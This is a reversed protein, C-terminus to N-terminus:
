NSRCKSRWCSWCGVPDCPRSRFWTLDVVVPFVGLGGLRLGLSMFWRYSGQYVESSQWLILWVLSSHRTLSCSQALFRAFSALRLSVRSHTFVAINNSVALMLGLHNALRQGCSRHLFSSYIPATPTTKPYPMSFLFPPFIPQPPCPSPCPIGLLFASARSIQAQPVNRV